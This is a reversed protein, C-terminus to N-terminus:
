FIEHHGVLRPVLCWLMGHNEPLGRPGSSRLASLMRLFGRAFAIGLGHLMKSLQLIGSVILSNCRYRWDVENGCDLMQSQMEVAMAAVVEEKKSIDEMM